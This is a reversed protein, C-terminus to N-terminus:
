SRYVRNLFWHQAVSATQIEDAHERFAEPVVFSQVGITLRNIILSHRYGEAHEALFGSVPQINMAQPATGIDLFCLHVCSPAFRAFIARVMSEPSNNEDHHIEGFKVKPIYSHNPLRGDFAFLLSVEVPVFHDRLSVGRSERVPAPTVSWYHFNSAEFKDQFEQALRRNNEFQRGQNTYHWVQLLVHLAGGAPAEFNSSEDRREENDTDGHPAKSYSPENYPPPSEGRVDAYQANLLNNTATSSPMRKDDQQSPTSRALRPDM